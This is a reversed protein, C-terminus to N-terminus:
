PPFTCAPGAVCRSAERLHYIAHVGGYSNNTNERYMGFINPSIDLKRWSISRWGDGSTGDGIQQNDLMFQTWGPTGLQHVSPPNPPLDPFDYKTVWDILMAQNTSPLSFYTRADSGNPWLSELDTFDFPTDQDVNDFVMATIAVAQINCLQQVFLRGTLEPPDVLYAMFHYPDLAIPINNRQYPMVTLAIPTGLYDWQVFVNIMCFSNNSLSSFFVMLIKNEGAPITFDFNFAARNSKDGTYPENVIVTIPPGEQSIIVGCQPVVALLVVLLRLWKM